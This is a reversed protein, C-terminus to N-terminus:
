AQSSNVARQVCCRQSFVLILQDTYRIYRISCIFRICYLLTGVLTSPFYSISRLVMDPPLSGCLPPFWLRSFVFCVITHASDDLSLLTLAYRYVVGFAGRGLVAHIQLEPPPEEERRQQEQEQQEHSSSAAKSSAKGSSATLGLHKLRADCSSGAGAVAGAGEAVVAVQAGAPRAGGDGGPVESGDVTVDVPTGSISAAVARQAAANKVSSGDAKREGLAAALRGKHIQRVAISIAKTIKQGQNGAIANGPLGLQLPPLKVPDCAHVSYSPKIGAGEADIGFGSSWNDQSFHLQGDNALFSPPPENLVSASGGLVRQWWRGVRSNSADEPWAGPIACSVPAVAEAASNDCSVQGASQTPGVVRQVDSDKDTGTAKPAQQMPGCGALRRKAAYAAVAVLVVLLVGCAVAIGAIAGTSLQPAHEDQQQLQLLLDAQVWQYGPQMAAGHDPDALMVLQM